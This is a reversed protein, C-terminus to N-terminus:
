CPMVPTVCPVLGDHLWYPPECRLPRGGESPLNRMPVGDRAVPFGDGWSECEDVTWRAVRGKGSGRHKGLYHNYQLLGLVPEREGIAWWVVRGLAPITFEYPSRYSKNQGTSLQVRRVKASGLRAYEVWPARRNKYRLENVASEYEGSSALYYMDSDDRAIPLPFRVCQAANSPPVLLEHKIAYASALLADLHIPHRVVFGELLEATVILPTV